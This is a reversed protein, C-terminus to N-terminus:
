LRGNERAVKMYFERAENGGQEQWDKVVQKWESIPRKGRFIEQMKDETPTVLGSMKAPMEVRIGVFPDSELHAAAKSQWGHYAQVYDPYQSETIAGPRGSLFMYTPQAEKEGLATRQVLGDKITYHEGEVGNALLDAEMTGFPASCWNAVGLIEHMRDDPLGKKIFCFMGAPENRWIIVKGGAHAPYPDVAAIRLKPNDALYTGYLEHWAGPGERYIVLQGSGFLPKHDADKNAVVDPHVWGSEFLKVVFEIHQEFEPTEYKYVLTGDPQKRWERPVGFARQVEQDMGGFAWRKKKPDTLQKGLTLLDDASAPMPLGLEDLIDKRALTLLVYPANQWPIGHLVGGYVGFQWAATDYAALMPYAKAKDGALYPSLDAFLKNAAEPFRAIKNAEWGPIQIMDPVEGSALIATLKEGYTNGDQINFRVVGGLQENVADYYANDGLGPPVKGWLPTMATIEKGSTIPKETIAQVFTAPRSLFGPEVFDGGPLDPTLGPVSFPIRNPVLTKLKDAAVATGKSVEKKAACGTLGGTAALVAGAGVIGLFGRRSTTAGEPSPSM